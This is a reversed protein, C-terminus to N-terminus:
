YLGCLAGVNSDSNTGFLMSCRIKKEIWREIQNINLRANVYWEDCLPGRPKKSFKAEQPHLFM